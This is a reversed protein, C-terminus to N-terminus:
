SADSLALKSDSLWNHYDALGEQIDAFRPEFGLLKRSKDINLPAGRDLFKGAGMSVNADSGILERVNDLIDKHRFATGCSINFSEGAVGKADLVRIVGQASDRVHTWDM